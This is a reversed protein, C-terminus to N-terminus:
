RASEEAVDDDDDDGDDSISGTVARRVSEVGYATAPLNRPM